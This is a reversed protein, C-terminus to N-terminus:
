HGFSGFVCDSLIGKQWVTEDDGAKRLEQGAAGREYGHVYGPTRGDGDGTEWLQSLM